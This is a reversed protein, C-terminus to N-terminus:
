YYSFDIENKLLLNEKPVKLLAKLTKDRVCLIGLFTSLILYIFKIGRFILKHFKEM